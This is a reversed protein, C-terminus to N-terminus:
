HCRVESLDLKVTEGNPLLLSNEPMASVPCLCIQRLILSTLTLWNLGDFQKLRRSFNTKGEM